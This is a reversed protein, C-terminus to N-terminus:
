NDTAPESQGDTVEGKLKSLVEKGEDLQKEVYDSAMVAAAGTIVISGVTTLIKNLGRINEPTTATILNGVVAGVGCSAICSAITKVFNM